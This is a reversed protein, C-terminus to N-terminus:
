HHVFALISPILEFGKFILGNQVTLEDRADFYIMASPPIDYKRNPWGNQILEKLEQM